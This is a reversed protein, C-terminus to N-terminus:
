KESVKVSLNVKKKLQNLFEADILIRRGIRTAPISGDRIRRVITARSLTSRKILEAISIWRPDDNDKESPTSLENTDM